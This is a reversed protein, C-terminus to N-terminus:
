DDKVTDKEKIWQKVFEKVDKAESGRWTKTNELIYKMQTCLGQVGGEDIAKPISHLYSQAYQNTVKEKMIKIATNINM